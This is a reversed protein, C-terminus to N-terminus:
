NAQQLVDNAQQEIEFSNKVFGVPDHDGEEKEEAEEGDVDAELTETADDEEEDEDDEEEEDTSPKKEEKKEEPIEPVNMDFGLEELGMGGQILDVMKNKVGFLGEDIIKTTERMNGDFWFEGIWRNYSFGGQRKVQSRPFSRQSSEIIFDRSSYLQAGEKRSRFTDVLDNEAGGQKRTKDQGFKNM